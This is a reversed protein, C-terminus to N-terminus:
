VVAGIDGHRYNLQGMVRKIGMLIDAIEAGFALLILIIKVAKSKLIFDSTKLHRM